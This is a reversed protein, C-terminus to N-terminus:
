ELHPSIPLCFTTLNRFYTNERREGKQRRNLYRQYAERNDYLRPSDLSSVITITNITIRNFGTPVSISM